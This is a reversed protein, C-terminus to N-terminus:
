SFMQSGIIIKGLPWHALVLLLGAMVAKWAAVKYYQHITIWFLIAYVLSVVVLSIGVSLFTWDKSQLGAVVSFLAFAGVLQAPASYYLSLAVSREISAARKFPLWSLWVAVGLGFGYVLYTVSWAVLIRILDSQEPVFAARISLVLLLCAVYFKVAESLAYQGSLVARAFQRPTSILSLMTRASTMEISKFWTLLSDPM